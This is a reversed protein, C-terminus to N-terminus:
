VDPYEQITESYGYSDNANATNPDPEIKISQVKLPTMDFRSLKYVANTSYAKINAGTQFTGQVGGIVLYGNNASYKTVIGGATATTLDDGQYVIDETQYMGNNGNALHVRVLAGAYLSEDIFTNAFVRRIIKTNTVPGYYYAKMTFSLTIETEYIEWDDELNDVFSINELIVPIDKVIGIEPILIQTFTFDPNFSPIIQEVIQYADDKNRALISLEFALNYPVGQYVTDANGAVEYNRPIRTMRNQQRERDYSLIPAGYSMMPYTAQIKKKLEPDEQNRALYKEKPGFVLPVKTRKIEATHAKNYKVLTINNFLSGFAAIYKETLRHYWHVNQM